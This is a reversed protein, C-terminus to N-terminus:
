SPSNHALYLEEQEKWNDFQTDAVNAAGKAIGEDIKEWAEDADKRSNIASIWFEAPSFQRTHESENVIVFAIFENRADEASEILFGDDDVDFPTNFNEGVVPLYPLNMSAVSEGYKVASLYIQDLSANQIDKQSMDEISVGKQEKIGSLVRNFENLSQIKKEGIFMNSSSGNVEYSLMNHKQIIEYEEPYKEELMELFYDYVLSIYVNNFNPVDEFERANEWVEEDSPLKENHAKLVDEIGSVSKLEFKNYTIM